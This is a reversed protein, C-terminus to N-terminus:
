GFQEAIQKQTMSPNSRIQRLLSIDLDTFSVQTTVQTTDQTAQTTDKATAQGSRFMNVRFSGGM